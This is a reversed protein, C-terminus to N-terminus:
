QIIGWNEDDEPFGNFAALGSTTIIDESEFEVIEIVPEIYKEKM